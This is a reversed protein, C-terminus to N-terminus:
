GDPTATDAPLEASAETPPPETAAPEVTSPPDAPISTTPTADMPPLVTATSIPENSTASPAITNPVVTMILQELSPVATLTASITITPTATVILPTSTAHYSVDGDAEVGLVEKWVAHTVPLTMFVLSTLLITALISLRQERLFKKL